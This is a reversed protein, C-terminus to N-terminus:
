KPKKVALVFSTKFSKDILSILNCAVLMLYQLSTISEVSGAFSVLVSIRGTNVSEGQFM